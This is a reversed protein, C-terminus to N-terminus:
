EFGKKIIMIEVTCLDNLYGDRRKPLIGKLAQLYLAMGLCALIDNDLVVM